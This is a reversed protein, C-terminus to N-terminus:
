TTRKLTDLPSTGKLRTQSVSSHVTNKQTSTSLIFWVIVQHHPGTWSIWYRLFSTISVATWGSQRHRLGPNLIQLRPLSLISPQNTTLGGNLNWEENNFFYYIPHGDVGEIFSHFSTSARPETQYILIPQLLVWCIKMLTQRSIELRDAM